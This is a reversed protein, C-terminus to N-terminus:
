KGCSMTHCKLDFNGRFQIKEGNSQTPIDFRGAFHDHDWATVEFTGTGDIFASETGLSFMGTLQGPEAMAKVVYKGPGMPMMAKTTGDAPSLMAKANRGGCNLQLLYTKIEANLRAERAAPDRTTLEITKRIEEDSLWYETGITMLGGKSTDIIESTGRTVTVECTGFDKAPAPPPAPAAPTAPDAPTAPPTAPNTPATATTATPPPTEAPKKDCAVLSTAGLLFAAIFPASRSARDHQHTIM